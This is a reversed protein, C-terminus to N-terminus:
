VLNKYIRALDRIGCLSQQDITTSGLSSKDRLWMMKMIIYMSYLQKVFPSHQPKIESWAKIPKIM